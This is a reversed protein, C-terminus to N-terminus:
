LDDSRFSNALQMVIWQCAVELDVLSSLQDGPFIVSWGESGIDLGVDLSAVHAQGGLADAVLRIPVQLRQWHRRM